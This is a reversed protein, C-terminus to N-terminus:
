RAKFLLMYVTESACEVYEENSVSKCILLEFIPEMYNKVRKSVFETKEPSYTNLLIELSM